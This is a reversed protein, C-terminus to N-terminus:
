RCYGLLHVLNRHQLHGISIIEAIFEKIGQNSNHAVKKVAIDFRSVPLVGKFVSGFGGSGLLNKDKFGETADFLDKYSFQHPGYEAEWDEHLEAYRLNKRVLLFITTGAAFLLVVIAVPLIIQLAKSQAKQGLRPLQPLKTTDIPPALTNMGFSWGLVYHQATVTGTSSSFGVYAPSTLVMSLNYTTSILPRVSKAVRFPAMTVNIQTAEADYDVWVQMVKHSILVLRQFIASKDDYYGADHSELSHLNNINIGIHNDNIDQLDYNKVTDLEIAFIHNSTAGNNQDNFLGLYQTPYAGSFNNNPAIFFALGHGSLDPYASLIAFVFSLSFSQVTGNPTRHFRLPTPHFAHGKQRVTGNTLELLGRPTINAAGDLTLNSGNFGSYVFQDGWSSYSFNNPTLEPLPINGDLYQMVQRMIPRTNPIPQSCMLGLMLVLCAEDANYDSKMRLDVTEKLSGRHWHELVVDVLLRPRHQSSNSIPRRGCTVELLFVGFAYVDTLPSVRGTFALEPALYGLTGVLKTTILPDTGHDHLRALGFDGLRGNMENDLLVNSAKIDRHIVVRECKEHLHLLGSAVDKIIHFRQSWHLIPKGEESYLYKDLSGNSMYDYVLLLEGKRRCYGLLQALNRHRLHGISVVESIFEKIGQSSDHSVRKVAVEWKSTPLVGKYVKGFGGIGLIHKNKFGETAKFLDKYSFRHPGFEVEWDERLEAFSLKRRILLIVATCTAIFLAASAIPWVINLVKPSTKRSSCPLEPLKDIDISPASTNLAFSWGLVYFWSSLPGTAASFGIYAQDTLVASLNHTVSLLPRAPKAMVTPALTVNIQTTEGDYEVWVQMPKCCCLTLNKFGGGDEDDYFGAHHSQISHLSNIDIGIHNGNIDELELNQATDLEVAFMHNRTDNDSKSNLLGMYQASMADSFNQYPSIFFAMGDTSAESYASAISFVFAVSFSQVTGNLSKKFQFPTPYLAHGKTNAVNNTLELLGEPTVRATGDLTLNTNGAGTFSSYAFHDEGACFPVLKLTLCIQSFVLLFLVPLHVM